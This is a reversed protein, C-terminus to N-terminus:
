LRGLCIHRAVFWKAIEMDDYTYEQQAIPIVSNRLKSRVIGMVLFGVLFSAMAVFYDFQYWMVLAIFPNLAKLTLFLGWVYLHCEKTEPEPTPLKMDIYDDQM